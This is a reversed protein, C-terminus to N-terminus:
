RDADKGGNGSEVQEILSEALVFDDPYTIKFNRVDGTVVAVSGGIREVSAATDTGHFGDTGAKRFADLLLGARFAQPTQAAWLQRDDVIEVEGLGNKTRLLYDDVPLAFIAGGVNRAQDLLLDLNRGDFLPRAGDHMLVLEVEDSDIRPALYELARAESDHRTDGGEIVAAVPINADDIIHRCLDIESNAAVVVVEDVLPHAAFPRAARAIAPLGLLDLYVKNITREARLGSGAGLIVAATLGV